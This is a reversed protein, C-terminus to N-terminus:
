NQAIIYHIKSRWSEMPTTAPPKKHITRSGINLAEKERFMEKDSLKGQTQDTKL